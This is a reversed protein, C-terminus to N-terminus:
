ALPTEGSAAQAASSLRETFKAISEDDRRRPMAFAPNDPQQVTNGRNPEDVMLDGGKQQVVAEFREVADLLRVLQESDETDSAEIGRAQLRAIVEATARDLDDGSSDTRHADIRM